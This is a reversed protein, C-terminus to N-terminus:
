EGASSSSAQADVEPWGSSDFDRKGKKFMAETLSPSEADLAGLKAAIAKLSELSDERKSKDANEFELRFVDIERRLTAYRGGASKHKEAQDALNLFAQLAALIAAVMAIIGTAIRLRVDTSEELTAFVSTAVVATIIVNPIGISTHWKEAWEGARYHAIGVHGTRLWYVRAQKLINNM